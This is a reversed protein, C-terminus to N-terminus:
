SYYDVHIYFGIKKEVSFCILFISFHHDEFNQIYLKLALTIKKSFFSIYRKRYLKIKYNQM